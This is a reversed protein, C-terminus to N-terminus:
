RMPKILPSTKVEARVQIGIVQAIGIVFDIIL